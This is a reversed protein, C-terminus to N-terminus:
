QPRNTIFSHETGTRMPFMLDISVQCWDDVLQPKQSVQTPQLSSGNQPLGGCSEEETQIVGQAVSDEEEPSARGISLPM